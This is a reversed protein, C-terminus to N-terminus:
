RVSASLVLTLVNTPYLVREPFSICKLSTAFFHLIIKLKDERYLFVPIWLFALFLLLLIDGIEAFISTLSRGKARKNLLHLLPSHM